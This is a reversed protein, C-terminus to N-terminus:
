RAEMEVLNAALENRFSWALVSSEQGLLRFYEAANQGWVM